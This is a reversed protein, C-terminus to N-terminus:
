QQFAHIGRFPIALEFRAWEAFYLIGCASRGTPNERKRKMRCNLYPSNSIRCIKRLNAISLFVGISYM